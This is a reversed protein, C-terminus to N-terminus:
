IENDCYNDASCSLADLSIKVCNHGILQSLFNMPLMLAKVVSPATAIPGGKLGFPFFLWLFCAEFEISKVVCISQPSLCSFIFSLFDKQVQGLSFFFSKYNAGFISYM